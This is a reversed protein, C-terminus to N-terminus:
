AVRLAFERDARLISTMGVNSDCILTKEEPIHLVLDTPFFMVANRDIEFSLALRVPSRQTQPLGRQTVDFDSVHVHHLAIRVLKPNADQVGPRQLTSTM